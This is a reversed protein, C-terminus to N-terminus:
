PRPPPPAQTIRTTLPREWALEGNSLLRSKLVVQQAPNGQWTPPSEILYYLRSDLVCAERAGPEYDLVAVRRCTEASFAWWPSKGSPTDAPAESHILVYRGDPTVYSVLARDKVLPAGVAREGAGPQWTLLSLAQTDGEIEGVIAALKEGIMWPESHWVASAGMQYSMLAGHPVQAPPSGPRAAPPLTTVAGTQLDVRFRGTAEKNAQALVYPSPSAGGSYRACAQWDLLLAGDESNVQYSFCEDPVVAVSAWDPFELTSSTLVVRGDQADLVVVQLASDVGPVNQLAAVSRGNILVPRGAVGAQWVSEGTLLDLAEIVDGAVYGIRASPEAVGCPIFLQRVTNAESV